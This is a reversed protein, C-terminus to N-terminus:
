SKVRFGFGYGQVTDRSELGLLRLEFGLGWVRFWVTFGSVSVRFEFRLGQVM